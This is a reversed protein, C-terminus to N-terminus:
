NPQNKQRCRITKKYITFATLWRKLQKESRFGRCRYLLDRICQICSEAANSTAPLHWDPYKQYTRYEQWHLLLGNLTRRLGRSRTTRCIDDLDHLASRVTKEEASNIVTQVLQIVRLAFERQPSRSGTTLYNQVAALLHFHCRQLLWRNHYTFNIIGTGGDCVIAGIRAYIAPPITEAAERWGKIDEHGEQLHPLWIVAENGKRPRLLFVYITYKRGQVRYWIADAVLILKGRHPVLKQWTGDHVRIFQALSRALARQSSSKGEQRRQSLDRVTTVSRSLYAAMLGPVARKKKRGRKRQRVRWTKTCRRCQRRRKGFRRAPANCCPSKVHKNIM